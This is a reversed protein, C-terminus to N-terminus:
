QGICICNKQVMEAIVNDKLNNNIEQNKKSCGILGIIILFCGVLSFFKKTNMKKGKKKGIKLTRISM